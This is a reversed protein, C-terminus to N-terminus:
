AAGLFARRAYEAILLADARGHDKKRTLRVTMDPFLEKARQISSGKEKPLGELMAKKWRQPTIREIRLRFAAAIGLWIGFGAGFTFAGQPGEGKHSGVQEIALLADCDRYPELYLAMRGLDYEFRKGVQTLPADAIEILRRSEDLVALAGSKGPDCGIVIM